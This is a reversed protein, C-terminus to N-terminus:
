DFSTLAIEWLKRQFLHPRDMCTTNCFEAEEFLSRTTVARLAVEQHFFRFTRVNQMMQQQLVRLCTDM